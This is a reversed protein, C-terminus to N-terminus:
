SRTPQVDKSDATRAGKTDIPSSVSSSLQRFVLRRRERPPIFAVQFTFGAWAISGKWHTRMRPIRNTGLARQRDVLRTAGGASPQRASIGQLAFVTQIHVTKFYRRALTMLSNPRAPSSRDDPQDDENRNPCSHGSSAGRLPGAYLFKLFRLVLEVLVGLQYLNQVCTALGSTLRPQTSWRAFPCGPAGTVRALATDFLAAPAFYIV